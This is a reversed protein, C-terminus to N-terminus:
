PIAVPAGTYLFTNKAANWSFPRLYGAGDFRSKTVEHYTGALGASVTKGPSLAAQYGQTIAAISTNGQTQELIARAAFFGDCAAWFAQRLFYYQNDTRGTAGGQSPEATKCVARAKAQAPPVEANDGVDWMQLYGVGSMNPLADPSIAITAGDRTNTYPYAQSTVLYKPFYKQQSATQTLRSVVFAEAESLAVVHTVGEQQFHLVERQVDSTIPGIDQALNQLCRHTGEVVTVGLQNALPQMTNKMIRQTWICDERLIGVKDGRKLLGRQASMTLLGPYLRDFRMANPLFRNRFRGVDVADFALNNIDIFAIGARALCGVLVDGGGSNFVLEAKGDKFTECAQQSATDPDETGDVKYYVPEIKRGAYGGTKNLYQIFREVPGSTDTGTGGFQGAIKTTDVTIIGVRIPKTIRGGGTSGSGTFGGGTSGSGTFGGGTSGGTSGGNTGAALGGNGTTAASGGGGVSDLGGGALNQAGADGSGATDLGAATGDSGNGGNSEELTSGCGTLALALVVALAAGRQTV